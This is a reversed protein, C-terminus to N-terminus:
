QRLGVRYAAEEMRVTRFHCRAFASLFVVEGTMNDRNSVVICTM